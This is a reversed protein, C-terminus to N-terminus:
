NNTDDDDSEEQKDLHSYGVINVYPINKSKRFLAM